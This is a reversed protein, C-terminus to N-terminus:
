QAVEDTLGTRLVKCGDKYYFKSFILCKSPYKNWLQLLPEATHLSYGELPDVWTQNGVGSNPAECAAIIGAGLSGCEEM